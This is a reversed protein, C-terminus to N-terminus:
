GDLTLSKRVYRLPELVGSLGSEIPCNSESELGPEGSFVDRALVGVGVGPRFREGVFDMRGSFVGGDEVTSASRSM